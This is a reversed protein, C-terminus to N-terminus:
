HMRMNKCAQEKDGYAKLTCYKAMTCDGCGKDCESPVFKFDPHLDVREDTM